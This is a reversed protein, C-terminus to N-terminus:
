SGSDHEKSGTASQQLFALPPNDTGHGTVRITSVESLNVDQTVRFFAQQKVLPTYTHNPDNDNIAEFVAWDNDEDGTNPDYFSLYSNSVIKYTNEQLPEPSTYYVNFQIICSYPNGYM